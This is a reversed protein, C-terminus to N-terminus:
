KKIGDKELKEKVDGRANFFSLFINVLIMNPQTATPPFKTSIEEVTGTVKGKPPRTGVILFKRLKRRLKKENGNKVKEKKVNKFRDM